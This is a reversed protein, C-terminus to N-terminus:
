RELDSERVAEYFQTEVDDPSAMLHATQAKSRM